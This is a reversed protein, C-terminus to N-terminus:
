PVPKRPTRMTVFEEASTPHIGITSDFDAKTAGANMAISIGQIIEPADAGMMHCGIVIDTKKDVILKMLTKEDRGTITHKLPAFSSIYIDTDYGKADAEEETLGVTGIPPQSFIATAINNYNVNRNKAKNFLRDALVHGEATAVPTLNHKNCVDGVAYINSKNTQYDSNVKIQGNKEVSLGVAGLNLKYTNPERGIAALIMDAPIKQGDNTNVEFSSGQKKIEQIDTNFLLNVGQKKMEYALAERIDNDFGRLFLDGRYMLTVNAGMGHLIHAFEVAIYGGGMIVVEKPFEKMFFADDSTIAHEGGPISPKRPKGGTAVLIKKAKIKTGDIDVTNEDIFSATGSLVDVGVNKLLNDYIGNLRKIEKDKNAKLIDWNFKTNGVSWGYATADEFHSSFDAAYAFLKKPICGVNVCTGGMHTDEAIGVKAGHSAAIRAARVGGSGAGIVFFDYEEIKPKKSM